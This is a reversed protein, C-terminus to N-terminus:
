SIIRTGTKSLALQFFEWDRTSADWGPHHKVMAETPVLQVITGAPFTGGKPNRAVALAEPQHGLLNGVYFDRVKTWAHINRFDAAKVVIDETPRGPTTTGGHAALGSLPTTPAPAYKSKSSGCAALVAASVLFVAGWVLVRDRVATSVAMRGDQNM